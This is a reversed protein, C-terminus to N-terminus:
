PLGIAAALVAELYLAYTGTIHVQDRYVGYHDVIATCVSSCFWHTPDIYRAGLQEVAHREMEMFGNGTTGVPASCAQVDAPHASLCTPPDTPLTPVDGIYVEQAPAIRLSRMLDVLGGEWVQGSILGSPSGASKPVEYLSLQSVVVMDPRMANIHRVAWSHFHDCNTNPTGPAGQSPPNAVTVLEAPCYYSALVVLRWHARLAIQDIAPLWMLAHSDGYLIMLHRGGPDGFSCIKSPIAGGVTQELCAFAPKNLGAFDRQTSALTPLLDHPITTIRPATAVAHVVTAQDAAPVIRTTATGDSEVALITTLVLLTAVVVAIGAAVTVKPPATAHRVPQEVFRYSAISALVAVALYPANDCFSLQEKGLREAALILIPWHWLYLSYSRRGVWQAPRSGLLAEAGRRPVAAGGAIILAAGIVPVAVLSGPYPTRSNFAFAAYVVAAVGAWTLVAAVTGPVKRLWSTGIAVLAGLALEWARTFPSFFAASASHSTQVISLWYSAVIIVGLLVALRARLDLRSRVSAVVLFLTPYVVYFQEEVSLSWYNQLPSPPLKATLYDTGVSAFHFNALFAAAWRGDNAAADGSLVGLVVYTALVTVGIVLTAAPLIRRVRRAYFDIISTRDTGRRERLLLGTIVFGSIVFFVDVGVYGGTLRPLGAHYLVVLLVAVARLGEVDPRFRRDDPATGAEDGSPLLRLGAEPAELASM